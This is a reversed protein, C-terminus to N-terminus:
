YSLAFPVKDKVFVFIIFTSEVLHVYQKFAFDLYLRYPVNM